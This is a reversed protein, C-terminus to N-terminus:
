LNKATENKKESVDAKAVDEPKNEKESVDVKATEEENSDSISDRTFPTLELEKGYRNNRAHNKAALDGEDTIFAQGDSAVSVKEAKPYRDFIDAAVAKQEEQNLVTFNTKKTEM